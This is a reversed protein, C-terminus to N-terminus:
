DDENSKRLGNLASILSNGTSQTRAVLQELASFRARLTQETTILRATARDIQSQLSRMTTTLGDRRVAITGTISKTAAEAKAYILDMIGDRSSTGAFLASVATPDADLAKKFKAADLALTGDRQTTIGVDAIRALTGTLTSTMASALGTRIVRPVADGSFAGATVKGDASTTAATQTDIARIATNYADVLSQVKSQTAVKDYALALETSGTSAKLTITVGDIVDSVTNTARTFTGLGTVSFSADAAGQTNAVALTTSDAVIVINNATGTGASTLTLKYAPAAATGMNVATAKVGAGLENIDAVLQELTTSATVAVQKETGAAGLKFTFTGDGTAVTDSLASKTVAATAVSGRALATTTLTFTGTMEGATATATAVEDDSSTVSRSFFTAPDRLGEAATKVSLLKTNLDQFAASLAQYKVRRTQLTTIPQQEVTLLREILSETDLGTALGGFSITAM